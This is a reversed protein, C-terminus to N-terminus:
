VGGSVTFEGKGWVTQRGVGVWRGARLWPLFEGLDGQYEADGTFGGLPHTRKTRSSRRVTYEWNLDSRTLQVQRAREGMARFDLEWRDKGYLSQLTCIRDRLRSFLVPFDPLLFLPQGAVRNMFTYGGGWLAPNNGPGRAMNSLLNDAMAGVAKLETPTVFRVGIVNPADSDPDLSIVSPPAGLPQCGDSLDLQEVRILEARGRGLGIGVDRLGEFAARIDPLVPRRLEFLHMSFSFGEGPAFSSGDLHACRFVFPRPQDRLGSPGGALSTPEFFRTYADNAASQRLLNGFAGRLTNAAAGPPFTVADLAQLVFRFRYFEFRVAM